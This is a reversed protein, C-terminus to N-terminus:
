PRNPYNGEFCIIFNLPLYPQMNSVPSTPNNASAGITAPDLTGNAPVANTYRDIVGRGAPSANFGNAPTTANPIATTGNLVHTHSPMTTTDVTYSSDNKTDGPIYTSLGKGTGAGMPTQGALNPLAFNSTGNGGYLTGIVSYLLSYQQIPLTQGNCFMFQRPPFNGCFIRIEGLYADM